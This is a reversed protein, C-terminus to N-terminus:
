FCEPPPWHGDVPKDALVFVLEGGKEVEAVSLSPRLVARGNFRCGVPYIAKPSTREVKIKLTGKAFQLEASEVSPSGLLYHPTGTLPYLGLCSWVYWSGLSGADNNGPCGGEGDAFRCRRVLDMVEALRDARGCWLYAYPADMDTENCLGEFHGPRLPRERTFEPMCDAIGRRRDPQVPEGPDPKYGVCFFDDLLSCFREQGGALAVREGMHPHPRFSYNRNDGEYFRGKAFLLGTGVDYVDKWSLSAEEMKAAFSDDGCAAAVAAAAHCAGIYDLVFSSSRGALEVSSLEREFAAKTRPYDAATLVGRFFADCLVYASLAAAQGSNANLENTMSYQIPFRGNAEIMGLMFLALERAKGSFSMLLPMETRYTDWLTTFDVFGGGYDCPKIFSHYLAGYFARHERESAFHARIRGLQASWEAKAEARIADFGREVAAEVRERAEASSLLSFGIASEAGEGDVAIEIVGADNKASVIDASVRLDFRLNVGKVFNYGHWAGPSDRIVSGWDIREGYNRVGIARSLGCATTDVRIVGKGGLFRYRHCAARPAAALEFSAGYDRLTAAYYGPEAREDVLDSVRTVDRGLAFPTFLFYNYFSGIWGTGSNHFHTFGRATKRDYLEPPPGDSSCGYRGYGSSYAGSYSCVSVWGQPCVAGPHTNGTQAKEWSWGRAMGESRLPAAAGAGWFPDALGNSSAFSPQPLVVCSAYFGILLERM